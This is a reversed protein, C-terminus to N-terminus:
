VAAAPHAISATAPFTIVICNSQLHWRSLGLAHLMCDAHDGGHDGGSARGSPCVAQHWVSAPLETWMVAFAFSSPACFEGASIELSFQEVDSSIFVFSSTCLEGASIELSFKDMAFKILKVADIDKPVRITNVTILRDAPDQVYPELGIENLGAWLYKGMETHRKWMSDLGQEAVIALAERM